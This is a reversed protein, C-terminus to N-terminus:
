GLKKNPIIHEHMWHKSSQVHDPRVFKMVSKSFDSFSFAKTLRVVYGECEPGFASERPWISDHNFDGWKGKFLIPALPINIENSIEEIKNWDLFFDKEPNSVGFLYVFDTLANYFISHKAYVNECHFALKNNSIFKYCISKAYNRSPHMTSDLSRAHFNGDSYYTTNEGDLKETVVVEDNPQFKYISFKDDSYVNSYDLHYTRFYKFYRM